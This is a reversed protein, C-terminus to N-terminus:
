PIRPQCEEARFLLDQYVPSSQRRQRSRVTATLENVVMVRDRFESLIKLPRELSGSLCTDVILDMERDLLQILLDDKQADTLDKILEETM